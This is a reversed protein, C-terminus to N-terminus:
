GHSRRTQPTSRRTLKQRTPNGQRPEAGKRYVPTSCEGTELLRWYADFIQKTIPGPRGDGVQHSDVETVPFIGGATSAFFVEDANYLDFPTLRAEVAALGMKSAIEFVTQRTIGRLINEGPTSLIQRKVMFVNYGPAEAVYGDMGLEVADDAGAQNAELRMLVHNLYNISKIKSDLGESPIRRMSSTKVKIGKELADGGALRMFPKAFVILSPRCNAPSLLPMPGVGRSVVIKIYAERLANRRVTELVIERLEPRSAPVQIAIAHASEFLRDIHENLKFVGGAWACCTDFVGDGYLVVHDFVSIKAEHEPYFTGDIYVISDGNSKTGPM